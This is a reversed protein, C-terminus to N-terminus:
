RRGSSTGRNGHNGRNMDNDSNDGSRQRPTRPLSPSTPLSSSAPLPPPLAPSPPSTTVGLTQAFMSLAVLGPRAPWPDPPEVGPFWEVLADFVRYASSEDRATIVVHVLGHGPGDTGGLRQGPTERNMPM